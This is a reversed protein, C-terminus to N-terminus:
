SSSGYRPCSLCTTTTSRGGSNDTRFLNAYPSVAPSPRYGNYPKDITRPTAPYYGSPQSVLPSALPYPRVNPQVGGWGPMEMRVSPTPAFPGAPAAYPEQRRYGNSYGWYGSYGRSGSPGWYDSYGSTPNAPMYASTAMSAESQRDTPAVPMPRYPPAYDNAAEEVYREANEDMLSNTNADTPATPMFRQESAGPWSPRVVPRYAFSGNQTTTPRLTTTRGKDPGFRRRQGGTRCNRGALPRIPKCHKLRSADRRRPTGLNRRSRHSQPCLLDNGARGAATGAASEVDPIIVGAILLSLVGFTATM